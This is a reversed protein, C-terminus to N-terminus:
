YVLQDVYVAQEGNASSSTLADGTPLDFEIARDIEVHHVRRFMQFAGVDNLVLSIEFVPIDDPELHKEVQVLRSVIKGRSQASPYKYRDYSRMDRFSLTALSILICGPVVMTVPIEGRRKMEIVAIAISGLAAILFSMATILLMTGRNM